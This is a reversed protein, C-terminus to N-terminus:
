EEQPSLFSRKCRGREDQKGKGMNEVEKLGGRDLRRVGGEDSVAFNHELGKRGEPAANWDIGSVLDGVTFRYCLSICIGVDAM